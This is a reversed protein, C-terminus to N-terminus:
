VSSLSLEQEVLDYIGQGHVDFSFEPETMLEATMFDPKVYTVLWGAHLAVPNRWICCSHPELRDLM